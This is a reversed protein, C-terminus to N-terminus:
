SRGLLGGAQIGVLGFERADHEAWFARFGPTPEGSHELAAAERLDIRHHATSVPGGNPFKQVAVVVRAVMGGAPALAPALFTDM